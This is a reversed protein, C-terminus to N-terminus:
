GPQTGDKDGEPPVDSQISGFTIPGQCFIRYGNTYLQHDGVDLTRCYMDRELVLDGELVVDGDREWDIETGDNMSEGRKPNRWADIARQATGDGFLADVAAWLESTAAKWRKVEAPERVESYKRRLFDAHKQRTISIQNNSWARIREKPFGRFPGSHDHLCRHHFTCLPICTNDHPRQRMGHVGAHHAEVPGNCKGSAGICPLTKVFLVYDHDEGAM